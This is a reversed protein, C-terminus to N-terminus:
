RGFSTVPWEAPLSTLKTKDGLSGRHKQSTVLHRPQTLQVNTQPQHRPCSPGALEYPEEQLYWSAGDQRGFSREPRPAAAIANPAASLWDAPADAYVVRPTVTRPCCSM